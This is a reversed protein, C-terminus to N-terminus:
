FIALENALCFQLRRVQYSGFKTTIAVEKVIDTMSVNWYGWLCGVVSYMKAGSLHDDSEHIMPIHQVNRKTTDNLKRFGTNFRWKSDKRPVLVVSIGM